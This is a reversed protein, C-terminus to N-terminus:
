SIWGWLTVLEVSGAGYFLVVKVGGKGWLPAVRYSSDAILVGPLVPVCWDVNTVPGGPLLEIPQHQFGRSAALRSMTVDRQNAETWYRQARDRLEHAHSRWGGGWTLLYLFLILIALVWTRRAMGLL